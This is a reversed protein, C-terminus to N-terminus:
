ISVLEHLSVSHGWNGTKTGSKTTEKRKFQDSMDVHKGDSIWEVCTPIGSYRVPPVSRPFGVYWRVGGYGM